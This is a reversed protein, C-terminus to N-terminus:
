RDDTGVGRLEYSVLALANWAAMAMHHCGTEKDFIEGSKWAEVHRKLSGECRSWSMGKEWNRDGYKDAGRTFVLALERLSDAPILEYRLKGKDFRKAPEQLRDLDNSEEM